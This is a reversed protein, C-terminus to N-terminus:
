LVFVPAIAHWNREAAVVQGDHSIDSVCNISSLDANM